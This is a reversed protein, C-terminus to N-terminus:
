LLGFIGKGLLTKKSRRLHGLTGLGSSIIEGAYEKLVQPIRGTPLAQFVELPLRGSPMWILHGFLRLQSREIHRLLSVEGLERGIGSSRVRDIFALGAVRHLFRM